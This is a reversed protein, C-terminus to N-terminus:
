RLVVSEIEGDCEVGGERTAQQTGQTITIPVPQAQDQASLEEDRQQKEELSKIHDM